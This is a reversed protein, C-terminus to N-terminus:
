WPPLPQSLSAKLAAELVSTEGTDTESVPMWVGKLFFFFFIEVKLFRFIHHYSSEMSRNTDGPKLSQSASNKDQKANRKYTDGKRRIGNNIRSAVPGGLFLQKGNEKCSFGSIALIFPDMLLKGHKWDGLLFELVETRIM